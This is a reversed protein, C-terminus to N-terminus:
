YHRFQAKGEGFGSIGLATKAHTELVNKSTEKKVFTLNQFSRKRMCQLRCFKWFIGDNKHFSASRGGGLELREIKPYFIQKYRLGSLLFGNQKQYKKISKYFIPM